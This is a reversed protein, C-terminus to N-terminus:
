DAKAGLLLNVLIGPLAEAIPLGGDEAIHNEREVYFSFTGDGSISLSGFIGLKGSWSMVIEGDEDVGLAPAINGEAGALMMAMVSLISTADHLAFESPGLSGPGKWGDVLNRAFALDAVVTQWMSGALAIEPANLQLNDEM